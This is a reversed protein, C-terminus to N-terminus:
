DQRGFLFSHLFHLFFSLPRWCYFLIIFTTPAPATHPLHLVQDSLQAASAQMQWCPSPPLLDLSWAHRRWIQLDEEEEKSWMLPTVCQHDKIGGSSFPHGVFPDSTKLAKEAGGGAWFIYCIRWLHHSQLSDGSTFILNRSCHQHDNMCAM